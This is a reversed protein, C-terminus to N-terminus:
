IKVIKKLTIKKVSGDTMSNYQHMLEHLDMSEAYLGAAAFPPTMHSIIVARGRRKAQIAEGVDDVIFPYIVPTNGITLLAADYISLSREKGPLYEQSGHTGLHILADSAIMQRAYLYAALYYHNVTVNRDHYLSKEKDAQDGRPPQRMIILNGLKIRPMLFYKESKKGGKNGGKGDIVMFASEPKGWDKEIADRIHQPLTNLAKTYTSVPFLDALDDDLLAHQEDDRYFPRLIRQTDALLKEEEAITVQYGNASLSQTIQRISRPINLFSASINKEGSPYNWVMMTLKKDANPKFALNAQGLSRSVLADLQEEIVETIESKRPSAAITIIDIVGATEPMALMFPTMMPQVGQEDNRWDEASGRYYQIAHFVPVGLQEFQQRRKNPSHMTRLNIINNVVVKGNDMILPTYNTEYEAIYFAVVFAGQAELKKILTDVVINKGAGFHELRMSIGIVPQNDPVVAVKKWLLYHNLDTFIKNEAAPHYIGQKPYKIPPLVSRNPSGFFESNLYDGLRSMNVAGGNRYYHSITKGQQPSVKNLMPNDDSWPVVIVPTQLEATLPLLHAFKKKAFKVNVASFLVLDYDKALAQLSNGEEQNSTDSPSTVFRNDLKTHEFLIGKDKNQSNLLNVRSKSSHDASVVLVKSVHTSTDQTNNAQAIQGTLGLLLLNILLFLPTTLNVKSSKNLM